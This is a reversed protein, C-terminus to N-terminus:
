RVSIKADTLRLIREILADAGKELMLYQLGLAMSGVLGAMTTYLATGMGSSMQKLVKQMTNVDLSATDAVSGLMLIFGVITGLLGLKLLVDILFWGIDHSGKVHAVLTSVLTSQEGDQAQEANGDERRALARLHGGVVSDLAVSDTGAMLQRGDVRLGVTADGIGRDLRTVIDLEIALFRARRGCYITGVFYLLGIVLCIHSRDADFLLGLLGENWCVVVGFISLGTVLLWALYPWHEQEQFREM